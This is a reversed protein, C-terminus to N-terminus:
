AQGIRHARQMRGLADVGVPVVAWGELAVDAQADVVRQEARFEGLPQGLGLHVDRGTRLLAGGVVGRQDDAQGVSGETAIGPGPTAGAMPGTRVRGTGDRRTAMPGATTATAAMATAM